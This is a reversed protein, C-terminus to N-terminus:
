TTSTGLFNVVTFEFIYQTKKFLFEGPLGLKLNGIYFGLGDPSESKTDILKDKM